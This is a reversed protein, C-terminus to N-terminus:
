PTRRLPPPLVTQWTPGRLRPGVEAPATEGGDAAGAPPNRVLGGGPPQPPNAEGGIEHDDADPNHRLRRRQQRGARCAAIAGVDIREAACAKGVDIRDAITGCVFTAVGM